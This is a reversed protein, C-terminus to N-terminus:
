KCYKDIYDQAENNGLIKASSYDECAAKINGINQEALGRVFYSESLNYSHFLCLSIYNIAERDDGVNLLTTAMNFFLEDSGVDYKVKADPKSHRNSYYDILSNSDVSNKLQMVKKLRFLAEDYKELDYYVLASKFYAYKNTSDISIVKNYDAIVLNLATDHLFGIDARALYADICSSDKNLADDAYKKVVAFNPIDGENSQLESYKANFELCPDNKILNCTSSFFVFCVLGIFFGIDNKIM